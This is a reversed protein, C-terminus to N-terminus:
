LSPLEDGGRCFSRWYHRRRDYAGAIHLRKSAEGDFDDSGVIGRLNIINAPISGFHTIEEVGPQKRGSFVSELHIELRFDMDGVHLVTYVLALEHLDFM